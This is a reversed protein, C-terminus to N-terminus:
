KKGPSFDDSLKGVLVGLFTENGKGGRGAEAKGVDPGIWLFKESDKVEYDRILRAAHVRQDFQVADAFTVAGGGSELRGIEIERTTLGRHEDTRATAAFRGHQPQDNAQEFRVAPLILISPALTEDDFM